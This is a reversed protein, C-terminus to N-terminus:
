YGNALKIGKQALSSRGSKTPLGGTYGIYGAYRIGYVSPQRYPNYSRDALNSEARTEGLARLRDKSKRM